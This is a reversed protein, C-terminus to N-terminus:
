TFVAIALPWRLEAWEVPLLWVVLLGVLAVAPVQWLVIRATQGIIAQLESYNDNARGSAIAVDRPLVQVIGFDLLALYVLVQAGLLWLGYRHSNLHHLLYPALWLGVVVTIATHVYGLGLGGVFRGLRSNRM